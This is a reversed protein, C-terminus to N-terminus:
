SISEVQNQSGDVMDAEDKTSLSRQPAPSLIGIVPLLRARPNLELGFGPKDLVGVDLYGKEPIPENLFLDGFVPM